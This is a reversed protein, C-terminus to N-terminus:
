VLSRYRRWNDATDTCLKGEAHIRDIEEKTMWGWWGWEDHLPLTEFSGVTEFVYDIQPRGEAMVETSFLYAVPTELGTEERLERIAGAEITEGLERHGGAGIGYHLPFTKKTASRQHVFLRGDVPHRVLVIVIEKPSM